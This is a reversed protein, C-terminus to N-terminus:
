VKHVSFVLLQALTSVDLSCLLTPIKDSVRTIAVLNNCILAGGSFEAQLPYYLHARISSVCCCLLCNCLSSNAVASKACYQSIMYFHALVANGVDPCSWLVVTPLPVRQDLSVEQGCPQEVQDSPHMVSTCHIPIM